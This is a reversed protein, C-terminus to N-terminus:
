RFAAGVWGLFHRSAGGRGFLGQVIGSRYGEHANKPALGAILRPSARAVCTFFLSFRPSGYAIRHFLFSVGIFISPPRKPIKHFDNCCIDFMQTNDHGINALMPINGIGQLVIPSPKVSVGRIPLGHPSM